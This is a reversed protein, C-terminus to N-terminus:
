NNVIWPEPSLSVLSFWYNYEPTVFEQLSVHQQTNMDGDKGTM